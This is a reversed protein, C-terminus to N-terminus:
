EAIFRGHLGPGPVFCPLEARVIPGNTLAGEGEVDFVVFSTTLTKGNNVLVVLYGSDESRGGNKPVFAPEGAIEDPSFAFYEMEHQQQLDWKCVAGVIGFTDAFPDHSALTYIYRHPKTSLELPIVPFEISGHETIIRKDLLKNNTLDLTYQSFAFTELKDYDIKEWVPAKAGEGEEILGVGFDFKIPIGRSSRSLHQKALVYLLWSVKENTTEIMDLVLKDDDVEYGNGFHFNFLFPVPVRKIRPDTTADLNRANEDHLLKRPILLLKTDPTMKVAEVFAGLGLVAKLGGLNNIECTTWALLIYNETVLFDHMLAIGPVTVSTPTSVVVGENLEYLHINTQGTSPDPDDVGFNFWHGSTPDYRPHGSFSAELKGGASYETQVTEMTVPDLLHPRGGEWLAWVHDGWKAVNTNGVNKIKTDFLNALVGGSKMTGFVGRGSLKGTEIDKVYGPTQIYRATLLVKEPQCQLALVFGDGDFPHMVQTGDEAKFRGPGNRYYTGRPFDPPLRLGAVETPEPCEKSNYRFINRYAEASGGAKLLDNKAAEQLTPTKQPVVSLSDVLVQCQLTVVFLLATFCSLSTM